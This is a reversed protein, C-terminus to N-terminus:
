RAPGGRGGKRSENVRYPRVPPRGNVNRKEAAEARRRKMKEIRALRNTYETWLTDVRRRMEALEALPVQVTPVAVVPTSIEAFAFLPLAAVLTLVRKM